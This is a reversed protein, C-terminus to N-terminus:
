EKKAFKARMRAITNQAPTQADQVSPIMRPRLSAEEELLRKRKLNRSEQQRHREGARSSRQCCNISGTEHGCRTCMEALQEMPADNVSERNVTVPEQCDGYVCVRCRCPNPDKNCVSRNCVMFGQDIM